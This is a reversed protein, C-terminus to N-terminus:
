FTSATQYVTLSIDTEFTFKFFAIKTFFFYYATEETFRFCQHTFSFAGYWDPVLFTDRPFQATIKGNRVFFLFDLLRKEEGSDSM